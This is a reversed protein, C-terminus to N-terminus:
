TIKVTTTYDFYSFDAFTGEIQISVTDGVKPSPYLYYTFNGSVMQGPAVDRFVGSPVGSTSVVILSITASGMNRLSISLTLASFNSQNVSAALHLIMITPAVMTRTPITWVVAITNVSVSTGNNFTVTVIEPFSQGVHFFGKTPPTLEVSEGSATQNYYLQNHIGITPLGVHFRTQVIPPSGESLNLVAKISVVSAKTTARLSTEWQYMQSGNSTVWSSVGTSIFLQKEMITFPAHPATTKPFLYQPVALSLAAILSIVIILSLLRKRQPLRALVAREFMSIIYSTKTKITDGFM